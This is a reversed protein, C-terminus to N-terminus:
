LLLSINDNASSPTVENEVRGSRMTVTSPQVMDANESAIVAQASQAQSTNWAVTGPQADVTM